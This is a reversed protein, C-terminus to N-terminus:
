KACPELKGSNNELLQELKAKEIPASIHITDPERKQEKFKLDLKVLNDSIFKGINFLVEVCFRGVGEKLTEDEKALGSLQNLYAKIKFAHYKILDVIKVSPHRYGIELHLNLAKAYDLLDQITLNKDFASEIKSIRSQTCGIKEALQKQSLNHDCRLYFLFKALTKGKIEKTALEKFTDDKSIGRVMELVNKYKTGM